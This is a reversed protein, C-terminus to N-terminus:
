DWQFESLRKLFEGMAQNAEEASDFLGSVIPWWSEGERELESVVQEPVGQGTFSRQGRYGYQGTPLGRGGDTVYRLAVLVEFRDFYDQFADEDPILDALVLRLVDQLYISHPTYTRRKPDGGINQVGQVAGPELVAISNLVQTVPKVAEDGPRRPEGHPVATRLLGALMDHNRGALAGIGAAYLAILAPYRRAKIAVVIGGELQWRSLRELGRILIGLHDRHGWYGTVAYLRALLRCGAALQELWDRYDEAKTMSTPQPSEAIKRANEVQDSILDSLDIRREPAALFRKATAVVVEDELSGGRILSQISKVAELLEPFFSDADIVRLVKAGLAEVLRQAEVSLDGRAIWTAGYRLPAAARIVGRLGEDYDASWGAVLVGYEGFMRGLQAAIEPDLTRVEDPTNRIRLDRYDGHAKIILCGIQTLPPVGAVDDDSSVVTAAIGVEALAEEMLRDFNTTVIVRVVGRQVLEAIARHAKTPRKLGRERENQNPEFFDTLLGLREAPRPALEQIIETYTPARGTRQEYWAAPEKPVPQGEGVAIREILSLVIEWGTRIGASRSVGSGLLVVYAGPNSVM